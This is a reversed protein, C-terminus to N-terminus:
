LENERYFMRKGIEVLGLYVIVILGIAGLMYPPLPVFGFFEGIPTYPILWGIAVVSFTSFILPLSAMSQIFPIKKTRIFHIVLTQTALSELFWATQFVGAEAKFGYYFLFFTSFDFISSIPGIFLMFKKIFKMNWRRAKTVWEEDVNDTPITLQSIDYLFNNLLIQVPMMPLFPLFIVAGAASFMNGFNSSLGMMIYKMTNGFVKRGEMVGDKLVSLSKRVLVIDASEKAV